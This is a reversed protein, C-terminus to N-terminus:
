PASKLLVRIIHWGRAVGDEGITAPPPDFTTDAAEMCFRATAAVGGRQTEYGCQGLEGGGRVTFQHIHLERQEYGPKPALIQARLAPTFVGAVRIEIDASPGPFDGRLDLGTTPSKAKMMMDCHQEPSMVSEAPFDAVHFVGRCSTIYGAQDIALFLSMYSEGIPLRSDPLQWRVRNTYGSTMPKGARDRAPFFRANAMLRECTAHDLVDFGSSQIIDCRVPKGTADVSLRFGTIGAMKFHQAAAPYDSPDIWDGPSGVPTPSATARAPAKALLPSAGASMSVALLPLITAVKM